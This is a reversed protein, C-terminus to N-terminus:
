DLLLSQLRTRRAPHLGLTEALFRETDTWHTAITDFAADLYERRVRMLAAATEAPVDARLMFRIDRPARNSDLYDSFIDDRSVGLASLLLAVGFGTRDKGSTCHILAPLADTDLLVDFMRAYNAAHELAFRRYYDALARHVTDATSQPGLSSLLQHGGIPLFGITHQRVTAHDPLRNPKRSREHEDRLDIITRVGLTAFRPLDEATLDALSDSRFLRGPRIRRGDATRLGGLDRFNPAGHFRQPPPRDPTPM